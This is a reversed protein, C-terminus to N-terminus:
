KTREALDLAKDLQTDAEKNLRRYKDALAIHQEKKDPPVYSELMSEMEQDIRAMRRLLKFHTKMAEGSLPSLDAMIKEIHDPGERDQGEMMRVTDKLKWYMKIYRSSNPSRDDCIVKLALGTQLFNATAIIENREEDTM